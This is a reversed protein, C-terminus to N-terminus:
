ILYVGGIALAIEKVKTYTTEVTTASGASQAIIDTTSAIVTMKMQAPTVFKLTNTGAIVEASTSRNAVSQLVMNTGDYLFENTSGAAIDGDLPDSGDVLKINKAGPGFDVSCAGTNATTAKFSLRQGTTYAGLVPTLAVVYTDDGGADAGYVFTGSQVNKAIDSPLVSLLAGTEGTDTGAISQATTAIEVKGAVAASANPNTGSARNAWAGAVYDTFQGEATVYAQMGNTPSTIDADRTTTTAYVKVPMGEQKDSMQDHMAVLKIKTGAVFTQGTVTTSPDATQSKFTLGTLTTGSVGTFAFWAKTNGSQIFFRGKTVTPATAVTATVDTSNLKAALTTSFGTQFTQAM